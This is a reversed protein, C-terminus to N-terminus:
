HIRCISAFGPFGTKLWAGVVMNERLDGEDTKSRLCTDIAKGVGTYTSRYVNNEFSVTTMGPTQACRINEMGIAKLSETVQADVTASISCFWVALIWKLGSKRKNKM